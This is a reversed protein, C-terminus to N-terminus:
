PGSVSWGDPLYAQLEAPAPEADAPPSWAAGALPDISDAYARAWEVWALVSPDAGEGAVGGDRGDRGDRSDRGDGGDGAVGGDRGDGGDGGVGGGGGVGGHGRGGVGGSRAAREVGAGALVADCYARVRAAREFAAAQQLLMAVRREEVFRERASAM